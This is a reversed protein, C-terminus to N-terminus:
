FVFLYFTVTVLTLLTKVVYITVNPFNCHAFVNVRVSHHCQMCM